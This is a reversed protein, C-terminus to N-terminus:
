DMMVMLLTHSLKRHVVSIEFLLTLEPGRWIQCIATKEGLVFCFTKLADRIETVLLADVIM